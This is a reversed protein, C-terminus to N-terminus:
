KLRADARIRNIRDQQTEFHSYVLYAQIGKELIENLRQLALGDSGSGFVGGGEYYRKNIAGYNMYKAAKSWSVGGHMSNMYSAVQSPTGTFHYVKKDAMTRRNIIGEGAEIEAIKRGSGDVIANGGQAHTRGGLVGGKSFQPKQSKITAIQAALSATIIAVEIARAVGLTFIDALGPRASYTSMIGMAANVIAQMIAIRQNRKFQKVAFEKEKADQKNKLEDIQRNYEKESILGKRLRAALNREKIDNRRRDAALEANEKNTRATAFAGWINFLKDTHEATLEVVRKLYNEEVETRKQKYKEQILTKENETLNKNSLEKKEQENLFKKEAKMRARGKKQVVDLEFGAMRNRESKEASEDLDDLLKKRFKVFDEQRKMFKKLEVEEIAGMQDARDKLIKTFLATNFDRILALREKGFILNIRKIIEQDGKAMERLKDFNKGLVVLAAGLDSLGRISEKFEFESLEKLLQKRQEAAHKLAQERLNKLRDQENKRKIREDENKEAEEAEKKDKAVSDAFMKNNEYFAKKLNEKKINLTNIQNQIEQKEDVTILRRRNEGLDEIERKASSALAKKKELKDIEIDLSKDKEAFDMADKDITAQKAKALSAALISLSLREYATKAKGLAIEEATFNAFTLPYTDQLEKAAKKQADIGKATNTAANYLLELNNREAAANKSGEILADNMKKQSASVGSFLDKLKQFNAILLGVGVVLAGIGTTILIARLRQFATSSASVAITLQNQSFTFLKNAFTGKQTFQIAIGKVGNAVSQIAMLNKIAKTVDEQSAGFLSAAGAATQFVDATFSVAGAFLDFGRTDSAMARVEQKTDSIQDTLQALRAQVDRYVETNKLGADELEILTKTFFGLEQNADGVRSAINLFKPNQTILSLASLEKRAESAQPSLKGFENELKVVKDKAQEMAGVIIKASGESFIGSQTLGQSQKALGAMESKMQGLVNNVEHYKRLVEPDGTKKFEAACRKASASLQNFTPLLEGKLVKENRQIQQETFKLQKNFDAIAKPDNTKKIEENLKKQKAYLIEQAKVVDDAVIEVIVQRNEVQAM